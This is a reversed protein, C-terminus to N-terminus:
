TFVYIDMVNGDFTWVNLFRTHLAKLKPDEMDEDTEVSSGACFLASIQEERESPTKTYIVIARCSCDLQWICRSAGFKFM